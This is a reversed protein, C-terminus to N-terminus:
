PSIAAPQCRDILQEDTIRVVGDVPVKIGGVPYRTERHRFARVITRAGPDDAPVFAASLYLENYGAGRGTGGDRTDALTPALLVNDIRYAFCQRGESDVPGTARVEYRYGRTTLSSIDAVNPDTHLRVEKLADVGDSDSDQELDRSAPQTGLQWETSDPVGDYDSDTLQANTGILQEDCDTLGDCDSDVGRLHPPCGRDVSGGDPAWEPTFNGGLDRFHVEVGDSFGDDDSDRVWPDTGLEFERDDILGDGDTDGVGEPSGAPASVNTIVLEKLLFTRRTTGYRFALFNIPEDNRFDRFEGGGREAMKRLFEADQEVVLLQCGGDSTVNCNLQQESDLNFVLVTNFRVDGTYNRLERIAEVPGGGTDADLPPNIQARQGPDTPHGDSLFIVSYETNAETGDQAANAQSRAIDQNILERIEALPKVFDTSDRNPQEALSESFAKLTGALRERDVSTYATLRDFEPQQTLSLYATTSGAFLMVAVYIEPDNPLSNFLELVAQARKGAPDTRSMSQSADLALLIKIPRVTDNTGPTCVEGEVAVARDAPVDVDRRQDFLYSDTCAWALLSVAVALAITRATM